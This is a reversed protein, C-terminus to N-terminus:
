FNHIVFSSHETDSILNNIDDGRHAHTNLTTAQTGEQRKINRTKNEFAKAFKMPYRAEEIFGSMVSPGALTECGEFYAM